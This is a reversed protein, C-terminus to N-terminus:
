VFDTFGTVDIFASDGSATVEYDLSPQNSGNLGCLIPTPPIIQTVSAVSGSLQFLASSTSGTVRITMADGAVAPSIAFYCNVVTAQPPVASALSVGTFTTAHGSGLVQINSDWQYLRSNSGGGQYFKIFQASSNTLVWGIRRFLSYGSPAILPNSGTPLLPGTANTSIICAPPNFGASDAIIYVAYWTNNALTGTDLGNVGNTAANITTSTNATANPNAGLFNGLNIDFTNTSDRCIGASVSLTTGGTLWTLTLGNINLYTGSRIPSFSSM